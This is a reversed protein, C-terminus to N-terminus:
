GPERMAMRVEVSAERCKRVKVGLLQWPQPSATGADSLIERQDGLKWMFTFLAPIGLLPCKGQSMHCRCVQALTPAPVPGQQPNTLHCGEGAQDKVQGVPVGHLAEEIEDQGWWLACFTCDGWICLSHCAGWLIASTCARELSKQLTKLITPGLSSSVCILLKSSM